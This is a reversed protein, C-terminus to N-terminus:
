FPMTIKDKFMKKLYYVHFIGAAFIIIIQLISIQVLRNSTNIQNKSYTNEVSNSMIQMNEIQEIKDTILEMKYNVKEFDKFNATGNVRQKVELSTEINFDFIIFRQQGFTLTDKGIICTKYHGTKEINLSFKGYTKKTEFSKILLNEKRDYINIIFKPGKVEHEKLYGETVNFTIIINSKSYFDNLICKEELYNLSLSVCLINKAIEFFIIFFILFNSQLKM